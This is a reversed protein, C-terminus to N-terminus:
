AGGGDDTAALADQWTDFAAMPVSHTHRMADRLAARLVKVRAEAGDRAAEVSAVYSADHAAGGREDLLWDIRAKQEDRLAVLVRAKEREATLADCLALMTARGEAFYAADGPPLTICAAYDRGWWEPSDTADPLFTITLMDDRVEYRDSTAAVMARIADVDITM